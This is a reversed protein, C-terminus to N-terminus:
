RQCRARYQSLFGPVVGDGDPHALFYDRLWARRQDSPTAFYQKEFRYRTTPVELTRRTELELAHGDVERALAHEVRADCGATDNPNWPPQHRHLALHAARATQERLEWDSPLYIHQGEVSTSAGTGFCLCELDLTPQGVKPAVARWQAEIQAQLAANSRAAGGCPACTSV